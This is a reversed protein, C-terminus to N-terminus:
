KAIKAAAKVLDAVGMTCGATQLDANGHYSDEGLLANLDAATKGVCAADFAAAQEFWEKVVGDGNLDTGYASMGYNSGLEKKTQVAKSTDFTSAGAATFGFTVQVCDSTAAVIKGEADVAAAFITTVLENSGNKDGEADTTTQATHFGLKLTHASTADSAVANNYAKEIALVFDSIGITCGASIVADTGKGEGAVLAKVETLTKGCVVTEFADAQEFWEKAAGGYAVMNYNAGQEYKTLFSENAIAKGDATYAVTYDATDLQCAVIKGEADVTVVAVTTAAQGQGNTDGEASTAKTIGTYVGLGLKLTEAKAECGVFAVATLAMLVSLLVCILKKM